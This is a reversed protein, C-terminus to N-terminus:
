SETFPVSGAPFYIADYLAATKPLTLDGCWLLNGGSPADFIALANAQLWAATAAPFQIYGGNSKSGSSAGAFNATTNSFAVRAYGSGTLETFTGAARQSQSNSDSLLGFYLTAPPTYTTIGLLADLVKNELYVSKGSAM